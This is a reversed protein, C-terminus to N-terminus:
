SRSAPRPNKREDAWEVNSFVQLSERHGDFRILVGHDYLGTLVGKGTQYPTRYIVRRGIDAETAEIM